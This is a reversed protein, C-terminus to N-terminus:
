PQADKEEHAQREKRRLDTQEKQIQRVRMDSIGHKRALEQISAKGTNRYIECDRWWRRSSDQKPMYMSLGGFGLTLAGLAIHTCKEAADEDM